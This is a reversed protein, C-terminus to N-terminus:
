NKPKGTLQCTHCTKICSAVDRKLRPWFFYRLIRDYTKRVGMHGCEDHSVQLVVSHFKSPVVIQFIPDGVFDPGHPVWKRM